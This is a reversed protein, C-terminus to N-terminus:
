NPVKSGLDDYPVYSINNTMRGNKIVWYPNDFDLSAFASLSVFASSLFLILKKM